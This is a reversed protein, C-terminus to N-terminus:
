KKWIKGNLYVFGVSRGVADVILGDKKIPFVVRNEKVDYYLPIRKYEVWVRIRIKGEIRDNHYVVHEPMNFEESM